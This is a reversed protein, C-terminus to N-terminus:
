DFNAALAVGHYTSDKIVEDEDADVYEWAKEEEMLTRLLKNNLAHGSKYAYFAGLIPYGLTYLDGIADLAKHRVFEDSYRLGDTNMIRYDDLVVANELSGGRALGRLRLQELERMFGFTRARSIEDVYSDRAMDFVLRNNLTELVPHSFAITFDLKFGQYPEFRVWKDGEEVVVTKKIRVYRRASSQQVIGVENLLFVFPGSSGDLIPLESANVEVVLNDIGLGFLASMLHEVTAVRVEGEQMASCMDTDHVAYPTVKIENPMPLDVRKFVIGTNEAAPRLTLSVKQGNHLGVGTAHAAKKLTHQWM